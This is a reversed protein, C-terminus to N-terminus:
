AAPGGALIVTVTHQRGSASTYSVTVSQGPTVDNVMINQLTTQSATSHGDVSTIVDGATLGAKAAPSGHVAGAIQVGSGQAPTGGNGFGNGGAPGGSTGQGIQVGLFATPGVHVGAAPRGGFVQAVVDTAVGIPIAFGDGAQQTYGFTQSGATDMGIVQGSRNVLPGGSDGAQISANTEIM